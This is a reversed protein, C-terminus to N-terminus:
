KEVRGGGVRKMRQRRETSNGLLTIDKGKVRGGWEGDKKGPKARKGFAGERGTGNRWGILSQTRCESRGICIARNTRVMVGRGGM